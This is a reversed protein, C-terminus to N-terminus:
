AQTGKAKILEDIGQKRETDYTPHSFNLSNRELSTQFSLKNRNKVFYVIIKNM